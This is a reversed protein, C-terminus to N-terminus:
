ADNDETFYGRTGWTEPQVPVDDLTCRLFHHMKAIARDLSFGLERRAMLLWNICINFRETVASQPPDLTYTSQIVAHRADEAFSKVIAKKVADFIVSVESENSIVHSLAGLPLTTLKNNM